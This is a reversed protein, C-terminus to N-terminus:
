VASSRRSRGNKALQRAGMAFGKGTGPHATHEGIYKFYKEPVPRLREAAPLRPRRPVALRPPRAQLRHGLLQKRIERGLVEALLSPVANGLQRQADGRSGVIEYDDPFTQIRCLERASLKRSKWHFPGIATGPQAQVTWAPRDKALKLLFGWYRRRWGFMRLGGGRDTHWLYNQGEPISPLLEGWTGGVALAPDDDDQLDGIADWARLWPERRSTFLNTPAEPDVHTPEPFKFATGDRAGVIIVRERTQPVGFDAANLKAVQFSYDTGTSANIASITDRLHVLGEDKGAYALGHVNELLFARPRLDRLVRLYATLTDARPDDLRKTDGFRWYASKSFPQCPPGGVLLDPQEPALGTLECLRESTANHGHIDDEVIRWRRNARLTECAKTDFEVAVGVKFGAAELGLDLGGAGTYLSIVTPSPM